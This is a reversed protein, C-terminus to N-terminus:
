VTLGWICEKNKKVVYVMLKKSLHKIFLNVTISKSNSTLPYLTPKYFKLFSTTFLLKGEIGLRLFLDYGIAAIGRDKYLKTPFGFYGYFYRSYKLSSFSDAEISFCVIM